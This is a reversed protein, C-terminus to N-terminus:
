SEDMVERILPIYIHPSVSAKLWEYVAPFECFASIVSINVFGPFFFVHRFFARNYCHSKLFLQICSKRFIHRSPSALMNQEWVCLLISLCFYRWLHLNASSPLMKHTVSASDVILHWRWALLWARISVLHKLFRTHSQTIHESFPFYLKKPVSLLFFGLGLHAHHLIQLTMIHSIIKGFAKPDQMADCNSPKFYFFNLQIIIPIFFFFFWTSIDVSSIRYQPCIVKRYKRIM